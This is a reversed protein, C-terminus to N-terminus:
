LAEDVGALWSGLPASVRAGPAGEPSGCTLTRIAAELADIERNAAGIAEIAARLYNALQKESDFVITIDDDHAAIRWTHQRSPLADHFARRWASATRSIPLLAEMRGEANV